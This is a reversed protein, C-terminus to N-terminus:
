RRLLSQAQAVMYPEFQHGMQKVLNEVIPRMSPIRQQGQKVYQLWHEDMDEHDVVIPVADTTPDYLVTQKEVNRNVISERALREDETLGRYEDCFPLDHQKLLRIKKSAETPWLPDDKWEQISGQPIYKSKFYARFDVCNRNFLKLPTKLKFKLEHQSKFSPEISKRKRNPPPPCSATKDPSKDPRKDPKDPRKDSQDPCGDTM